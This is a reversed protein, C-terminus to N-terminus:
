WKFFSSLVTFDPLLLQQKFNAVKHMTTVGIVQNPKEAKKTHTIKQCIHNPGGM